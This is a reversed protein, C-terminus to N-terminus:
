LSERREARAYNSKTIAKKIAHCAICKKPKEM